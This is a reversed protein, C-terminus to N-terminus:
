TNSDPRRNFIGMRRGALFSLWSSGVMGVGVGVGVTAVFTLADAADRDYSRITVLVFMAIGLSLMTVGWQMSAMIRATPAGRDASLSEIFRSGADSNFFDVLESASGIRDLLKNHFENVVRLQQRRRVGDVVIYVLWIVSGFLAPLVIVPGDM